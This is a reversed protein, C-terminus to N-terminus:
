GCPNGNQERQLLEGLLLTASDDFGKMHLRKALRLLDEDSFVTLLHVFCQAQASSDM